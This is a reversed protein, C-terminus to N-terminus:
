KNEEKFVKNFSIPPNIPVTYSAAATITGMLDTTDNWTNGDKKYLHIKGGNIETKLNDANNVTEFEGKLYLGYNSGNYTARLLGGAMEFTGNSLNFHTGAEHGQNANYNESYIHGSIMKSGSIIGANVFKAILGYGTYYDDSIKKQDPDYDKYINRGIALSANDWKDETFLIADHTIRLQHPDYDNEM